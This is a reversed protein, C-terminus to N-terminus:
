LNENQAIADSKSVVYFDDYDSTTRVRFLSSISDSFDKDFLDTKLYLERFKSIIGSHKKSDFEDLILMARMTRFAAYYARNAPM